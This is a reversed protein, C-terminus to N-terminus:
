EAVVAIEQYIRWYGDSSKAIVLHHPTSKNKGAQTRLSKIRVLEGEILYETQSYDSRDNRQKAAEMGLRLIEKFQKGTWSRQEQTGDAKIRLSVIYAADSYLSVIRPDYADGLALWQRFLQKAAAIKQVPGDSSQAGLPAAILFLGAATLAGLLARRGPAAEQMNRRQTM